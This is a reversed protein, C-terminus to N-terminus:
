PIFYQQFPWLSLFLRLFLIFFSHVLEAPRHWVYITVDRGRSASGAPVTPPFPSAAFYLLSLISCTTCTAQLARDQHVNPLLIAFCHACISELCSIKGTSFQNWDNMSSSFHNVKQLKFSSCLFASLFHSQPNRSRCPQCFRRALRLSLPFFVLCVSSSTPLCCWPISLGPTRCTGSPLPSCPFISFVPQLIM